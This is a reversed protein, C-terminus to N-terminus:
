VMYNFNIVVRVSDDTCTTGTHKMYGPFTLMRNAVSNVKTGDEFFTYGDNTNLYFISTTVLNINKKVDPSTHSPIELDIHFENEVITSTRTLLNAKVRFIAMPRFKSFIPQLITITAIDNFPKGYSQTHYFTHVFQFKNIDSNSDISNNYSWGFNDGMMLSQISDFEKQDLFNDKIIIKSSEERIDM